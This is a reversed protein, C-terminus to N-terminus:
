QNQRSRKIMEAQQMLILQDKKWEPMEEAQDQGQNVFPYAEEVKPMKAPDNFAYAILSALQHDM